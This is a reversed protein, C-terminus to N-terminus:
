DWTGATSTVVAKQTLLQDVEMDVAMTHHVSGMIFIHATPLHACRLIETSHISEPAQEACDLVEM